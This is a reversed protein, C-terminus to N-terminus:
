GGHKQRYEESAYGQERVWEISHGNNIVENTWNDWGGPDPERQLLELYLGRIAARVQEYYTPEGAPQGGPGPTPAPGPGPDRPPLADKLVLDGPDPTVSSPTDPGLQDPGPLDLQQNGVDGIVADVAGAIAALEADDGSAGLGSLADFVPIVNDNYTDDLSRDVMPALTSVSGSLGADSGSFIAVFQAAFGEFDNPQSVRPGLPMAEIVIPGPDFM